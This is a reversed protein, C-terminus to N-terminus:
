PDKTNDDYNDAYLDVIIKNGNISITGLYKYYGRKVPIESGEVVGTIRPVKISYTAEYTKGILASIPDHVMLYRVGTFEIKYLSGDKTVTAGEHNKAKNSIFVLWGVIVITLLAFM